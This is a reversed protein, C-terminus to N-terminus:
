WAIQMAFIKACTNSKVFHPQRGFSFVIFKKISGNEITSAGSSLNTLAPNAVDFIFRGKDECRHVM